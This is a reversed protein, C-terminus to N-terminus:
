LTASASPWFCVLCALIASLTTEGVVHDVDKGAVILVKRRYKGTMFGIIAAFPLLFVLILATQEFNVPHLDIQNYPDIPNM